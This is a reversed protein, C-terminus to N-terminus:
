DSLLNKTEPDERNIKLLAMDDDPFVKLVDVRIHTKDIKKHTITISVHDSIVHYCTLIIDKEIFFGSGTTPIIDLDLDPHQFNTERTQVFIKVIIDEIEM